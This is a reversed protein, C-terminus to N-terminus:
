RHFSSRLQLLIRVAETDEPNLVVARELDEEAMELEDIILYCKGRRLLARTNSPNLDLAEDCADIAEHWRTLSMLTAAKNTLAKGLLDRRQESISLDYCSFRLSDCLENYQSLASEFRGSRFHENAQAKLVSGRDLRSTADENSLEIRQEFESSTESETEIECTWFDNSTPAWMDVNSAIGATALIPLLPHPAICNLVYPDSPKKLVLRQGGFREWIFLSGCDGGTAVYRGNGLLSVEKLFTQHNVRGTWQRPIRNDVGVRVKIPDSCTGSILGTDVEIVSQRCYNVVVRNRLDWDLGSVAETEGPFFTEVSRHSFEPVLKFIPVSMNRSDFLLVTRTTTGLAFENPRIPNFALATGSPPSMFRGTSQLRLTPDTRVNVMENGTKSRIDFRIVAGDSLTVLGSTSPGSPDFVHKFCYSSAESEFLVDRNGTEVNLLHVCGDAACTVLLEDNSSPVFSACFVNNRHGTPITIIPEFNENWIIVSRDDSGSVLKTGNENWAISNVCGTHRALASFKALRCVTSKEWELQCGDVLKGIDRVRFPSTTKAFKLIKGDWDRRHFNQQFLKGV